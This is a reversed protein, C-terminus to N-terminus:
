KLVRLTNNHEIAEALKEVMYDRLGVNTLNLIELHTSEPLASFLNEFKEDSINQSFFIILSM